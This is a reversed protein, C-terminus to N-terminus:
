AFIVHQNYVTPVAINAKDLVCVEAHTMVGHGDEYHSIMFLQPTLQQEVMTKIVEAARFRHEKDFGKGFEDLKLPVDSLKMFKLATIRFALNIIEIMASSGKSVDPRVRPNDGVKLPFKYDLETVGEVSIGCPKIDLPYTWIKKIVANMGATFVRIFGLLGDAILGKTPSLNQVILKYAEQKRTLIVIQNELDKILSEQIEVNRLLQENRSIGYQLHEICHQISQLRIM